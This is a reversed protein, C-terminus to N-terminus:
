LASVPLGTKTQLGAVSTPRYNRFGGPKLGSKIVLIRPGRPSVGTVAHLEGWKGGLGWWQCVGGVGDSRGAGGGQM